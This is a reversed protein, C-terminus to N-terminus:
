FEGDFVESGNRTGIARWTNLNITERVFRASGDCMLVHVGQEHYSSAPMTTKSFTSYNCALSNPPSVHTYLTMHWARIWYGGGDSRIQMALNNTNVAQCQNMADDRTAPNSGPNFFDSRPTIISNSWDGKNRESFAATNSSGDYIEVVRVGRATADATFWFTGSAGDADQQWLIDSGYNAVYSNGAWGAPMMNQPDAPCVFIPIVHARAAANNAHDPILTFNIMRHVNEQELFPLLVSLSSFRNQALNAPNSTGGGGPPFSGMADHYNHLGLGIQKLNNQCKTRAAAARVKQVAPLLLGILIAIIAIVVLLEILTFATRRPHSM